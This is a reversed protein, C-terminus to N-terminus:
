LRRREIRKEKEKWNIKLLKIRKVTAFAKGYRFIKKRGIEWSLLLIAQRSGEKGTLVHVLDDPGSNTCHDM